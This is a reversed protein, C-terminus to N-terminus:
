HVHTRGHLQILLEYLSKTLAFIVSQEGVLCHLFNDVELPLRAGLYKEEFLEVPEQGIYNGEDQTNQEACVELRM